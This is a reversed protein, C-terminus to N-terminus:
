VVATWFYVASYFCQGRNYLAMRAILDQEGCHRLMESIWHKDALQVDDNCLIVFEPKEPLRLIYKLGENMAATFWLSPNSKLITIDLDHPIDFEIKDPSHDVIILQLKKESQM